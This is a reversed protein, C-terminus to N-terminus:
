PLIVLSKQILDVPVPMLPGSATHRGSFTWKAPRTNNSSPKIPVGLVFGALLLHQQAVIWVLNRSGIGPIDRYEVQMALTAADQAWVFAPLLLFAWFVSWGSLSSAKVKPLWSQLKLTDHNKM